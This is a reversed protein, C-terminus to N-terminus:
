TDLAHSNLASSSNTLPAPGSKSQCQWVKQSSTSWSKLPFCDVKQSFFHCKLKKLAGWIDSIVILKAVGPWALLKWLNEYYDAYSALSLKDGFKGFTQTIL